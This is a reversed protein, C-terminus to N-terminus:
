YHPPPPDEGDNFSEEGASLMSQIRRLENRLSNLQAEQEIIVDNLVDLTQEQYLFKEELIRLRDDVAALAAIRDTPDKKQM